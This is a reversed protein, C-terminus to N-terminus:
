GCLPVRSPYSPCCRWGAPRVIWLVGPARFRCGFRSADASHPSAVVGVRDAPEQPFVGVADQALQDGTCSGAPGPGAPRRSRPSGAEAPPAPETSLRHRWRNRTSSGACPCASRRPPPTRDTTKTISNLTPSLSKLQAKSWTHSERQVELVEVFLVDCPWRVTRIAVPM